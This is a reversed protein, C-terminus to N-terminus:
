SFKIKFNYMGMICTGEIESGAKQIGLAIETKGTLPLNKQIGLKPISLASSCDFTNNTNVRLITEKDAAAIIVAPSYGGKAILDIIQTEGSMSVSESTGENSTSGKKSFLIIGGVLLIAIVLVLAFNKLSDKKIIM